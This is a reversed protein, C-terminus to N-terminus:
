CDNKGGQKGNKKYKKKIDPVPKLVYDGGYFVLEDPNIWNMHIAVRILEKENRVNLKTFIINKENSITRVSVAMTEAAEKDSFGNSVCRIIEIQRKTIKEAPDPFESRMDIRKQVAPSIYERGKSLENLGKYFHELGDYLSVFGKAGNVIFNMGLEAPYDNGVAVAAININPFDRLLEGVMYPTSCKYFGAGIIVLDPKMDDILMNLGGKDKETVSINKFGFEDLRKTYYKHLQVARSVLLTGGKM